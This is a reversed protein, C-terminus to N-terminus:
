NLGIYTWAAGLFEHAQSQTWPQRWHFLYKINNVELWEKCQETTLTANYTYSLISKVDDLYANHGFSSNPCNWALCEILYSPIPKAAAIGNDAMENRLRKLGRVLYKYRYNTANNKKVGEDYHQNPYNEIPLGNDPRLQAGSHYFYGGNIKQNTYLRYEFCPVVDADVRYTNAHIDFAKNGRTISQSGFKNKLATEIDVKFQSYTYKSDGFGLIENTLGNAHTYDPIFTDMFRVCIDVDSQLRVNTNNRYSGQAIVEVRHNSLTEDEQIAERIMREANQCKQDETDSSPERWSRFTTEWDRSM